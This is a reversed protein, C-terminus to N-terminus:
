IELIKTKHIHFVLKVFKDCIIFQLYSLLFGKLINIELNILDRSNPKASLFIQSEGQYRGDQIDRQLGTM